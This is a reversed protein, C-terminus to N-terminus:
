ISAMALLSVMLPLDGTLLYMAGVRVPRESKLTNSNCAFLFGMTAWSLQQLVTRRSLHYM